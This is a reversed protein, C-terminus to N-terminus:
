CPSFSHVLSYSNIDEHQLLRIQGNEIIYMDLVYRASPLYENENMGWKKKKKKPTIVMVNQSAVRIGALVSM